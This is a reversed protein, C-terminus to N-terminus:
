REAKATGDVVFITPCRFWLCLQEWTKGKEELKPIMPISVVCSAAPSSTIFLLATCQTPKSSRDLQESVLIPFTAPVSLINVDIIGSLDDSVLLRARKKRGDLGLTECCKRGAPWRGKRGQTDKPIGLYRGPNQPFPAM